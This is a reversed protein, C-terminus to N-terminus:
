PTGQYGRMIEVYLANALLEFDPVPRGNVREHSMQNRANHCARCTRQKKTARLNPGELLHKWKCAGRKAYHHTGNRVNDYKNETSTDWRLNPLLNNSRSGDGHCAEHGLPRRGVFATLVLVHVAVEERLGPRSLNVRPYGRRLARVSLVRGRNLRRGGRWHTVERDLSRVRGQDSVEYYGEWEPIPLWREAASDESM